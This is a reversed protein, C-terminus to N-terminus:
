GFADWVANSFTACNKGNVNYGNSSYSCVWNVIKQLDYNIDRGREYYVYKDYRGNWMVFLDQRIKLTNLYFEEAIPFIGMKDYFCGLNNLSNAVESHNEGFINQYVKLAKFNCQEAKQLNGMNDYLSGLNNLSMGVNAHNEGFFHQNIELAKLYFQKAKPLNVM